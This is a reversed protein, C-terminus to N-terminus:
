GFIPATGLKPSVAQFFFEPQHRYDEAFRSAASDASRRYNGRKSPLGVAKRILFWSIRADPLTGATRDRRARTAGTANAQRSAANAQPPHEMRLYANFWAASATAPLLVVKALSSSGSSTFAAAGKLRFSM